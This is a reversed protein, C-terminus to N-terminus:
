KLRWVLLQNHDLLTKYRRIGDKNIRYLERRFEAIEDKRMEFVAANIVEVADIDAQTPKRRIVKSAM